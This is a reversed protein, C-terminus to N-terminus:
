GKNINHIAKLPTRATGTSDSVKPFRYHWQGDFWLTPRESIPLGMQRGIENIIDPLQGFVEEYTKFPYEDLKNGSM